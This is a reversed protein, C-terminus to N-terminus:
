EVIKKARYFTSYHKFYEIPITVDVGVGNGMDDTSYYPKVKVTHSKLDMIRCLTGKYWWDELLKPETNGRSREVQDALISKGCYSCIFVERYRIGFVTKGLMMRRGTPKFDHQGFLWCTIKNFLKKM